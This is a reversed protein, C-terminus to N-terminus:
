YAEKRHAARVVTICLRDHEIFYVVRYDGVRLRYSGQEGKLAKVNQAQMPEKCLLALKSEISRQIRTPLKSLQKLADKTFVLSYM